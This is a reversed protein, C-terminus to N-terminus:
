LKKLLNKGLRTGNCGEGYVFTDISHSKGTVINSFSSHITALFFDCETLLVLDVLIMGLSDKRKSYDLHEPKFDVTWVKEEFTTKAYNKVEVNDTALFWKIEEHPALDLLNNEYIYKEVKEACSFFNKFQTTRISAVNPVGFHFDSTRVHMCIAKRPKTVMNEPILSKRSKEVLSSLKNTPQFLFDYACGLTAFPFKSDRKPLGLNKAKLKFHRNNIVQNGFYRITGILEYQLPLEASFNTDSVWQHIKEATGVRIDIYNNQINQTKQRTSGWYHHKTITKNEIKLLNIPYDWEIENSGLYDRLQSAGKWHILFVRDTLVALYLLSAIGFIRNGLGGCKTDLCTYILFQATDPSKLANRHCQAYRKQWTGCSFTTKRRPKISDKKLVSTGEEISYKSPTQLVLIKINRGTIQLFCM